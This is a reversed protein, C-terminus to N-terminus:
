QFAEENDLVKSRHLAEISFAASLIFVLISIVAAYNYDNYSMSLKYLWTILLDTQGATGNNYALSTPAGGTLLYIVNFNNINGIFSTILYPTTVFLIYPMTIKFFITVPGAGDMEAAEYLEVPINQLIGTTQLMTFPIGVWLNVIIVTVRAWTADTWFPLSKHILGWSKLLVNVAGDPQLMTSMILLSVFQPVAISLVFIFRWMSKLKTDKRDIIIALIIGFIYNLFTAFIAWVITWALIRWFAYGLGNSATFLAGFNKLGVWDFLNGPPQHNRDYNTFAMLAMFFLPIITFAFVSIVPGALLLKHLNTDALSMVDKIFGPLRKGNSKLVQAKYASRLNDAWAMLFFFIIFITFVGYLLFLMSNDGETYEYVQKAENFVQGGKNTGLTVLGHLTGAGLLVMYVIFLIECSLYIIGKGIQKKSFNGAGMVVASLKTFADGYKLANVFTIDTKNKIRKMKEKKEM